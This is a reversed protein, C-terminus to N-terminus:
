APSGGTLMEDIISGLAGLFLQVEADGVPEHDSLCSTVIRKECASVAVTRRRRPGASLRMARPGAGDIGAGASGQLGELPHSSGDM